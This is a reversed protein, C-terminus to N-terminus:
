LRSFHPTRATPTTHPAPLTTHPPPTLPSHHPFLPTDYGEHDTTRLQLDDGVDGIVDGDQDETEGDDYDDEKVILAEM